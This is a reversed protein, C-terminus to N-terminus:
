ATVAASANEKKFMTKGNTGDLTPRSPNIDWVSISSINVNKTM